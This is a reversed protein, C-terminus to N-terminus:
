PDTKHWTNIMGDDVTLISDLLESPPLGEIKVKLKYRLPVFDIHSPHAHPEEIWHSFTKMGLIYKGKDIVDSNGGAAYLAEFYPEIRDLSGDMDSPRADFPSGGRIEVVFLALLMLAMRDPNTCGAAYPIAAIYRAVPSESLWRREEDSLKLGRTAHEVIAPWEQQVFLTREQKVTSKKM